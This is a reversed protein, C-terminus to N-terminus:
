SNKYRDPTWNSVHCSPGSIDCYVSVTQCRLCVFGLRGGQFNFVEGTLSKLALPQYLGVTMETCLHCHGGADKDLVIGDQSVLRLTEARRRRLEFWHRISDFM